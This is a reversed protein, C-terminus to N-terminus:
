PQVEEGFVDNPLREAVFGLEERIRTVDYVSDWEHGPQEFHSVDLGDGYWTRLVEAVPEKVWAKPGCANMIRVGPKYPAEVAMTFVRVADSLCMVTISGLAWEYIPGAERLPPLNEDAVVSSLRLNIIDLDENQRHYYKTV